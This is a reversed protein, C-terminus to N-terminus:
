HEAKIKKFRAYARDIVERALDEPLDVAEAPRMSSAGAADIYLSALGLRRQFFSASRYLVQTRELPLLWLHQKIVGRRVYLWREDEGWGMHRYRLVAGLLALPILTLLWIGPSWFYWLGGVFVALAVSYRIFARRITLTSVPQIEPERIGKPDPRRLGSQIRNAARLVEEMTGFPVAVKHGREKVDFGMTQVELRYWGFRKMLPNTRIIFAQVKRLPITGTYRSLLGQKHHLKDGEARLSFGYYKNLNVAIGSLWAFFGAVIITSLFAIIPSESAATALVEFRGGILWDIMVEPNPEVYQVFSFFLAIYLLSFRFVGSLIVRRMTMEFLPADVPAEPPTLEEVPMTVEVPLAIEGALASQFERISDRVRHAEGLAVVDLVGEAATSGATFISVQATGTLRQLIGQEVEVNQIRDVPINRKRVTFVGSRIAIEEPAIRYRFRMYRIISWPFVLLAYMGVLVLNFWAIGESSRLVPLLLLFLAPVAVFVRQLLTWPHLRREDPDLVSPEM